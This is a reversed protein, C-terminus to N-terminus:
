RPLAGHLPLNRASAIGTRLLANPEVSASELVLGTNSAFLPGDSRDRHRSSALAARDGNLVPHQLAESANADSQAAHLGMSINPDLFTGELLTERLAAPHPRDTPSATQVKRYAEPWCLSPGPGSVVRVGPRRCRPLQTLLAEAPEIHRGRGRATWRPTPPPLRTRASRDHRSNGATRSQLRPIDPIRSRDSKSHQPTSSSRGAHTTVAHPRENGSFVGRLM